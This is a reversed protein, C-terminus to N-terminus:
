KGTNERYTTGCVKFILKVKKFKYSNGFEAGAVEKYQARCEGDGSFSLRLLHGNCPHGQFM